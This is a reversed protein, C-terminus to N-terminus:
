FHHLVRSPIQTVWRNLHGSARPQPTGLGIDFWLEVGDDCRIVDLCRDLRKVLRQRRAQHGLAWVVDYEDSARLVEYPAAATGMGTSLLGDLCAQFQFRALEEEERDKLCGAAYGALLHFRPSLRWQPWMQRSRREMERFRGEHCLRSLEALELSQRDFGPDALALRRLRRYNSRTPQELFTQYAENAITNNM